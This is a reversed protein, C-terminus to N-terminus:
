WVVVLLIRQFSTQLPTIVNCFTLYDYHMLYKTIVYRQINFFTWLLWSPQATHTEILLEKILQDGLEWQSWSLDAGGSSSVLCSLVTSVRPKSRILFICHGQRTKLIANSEIPASVLLRLSFGGMCVDSDGTM